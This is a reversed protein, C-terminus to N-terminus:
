LVRRAKVYHKKWFGTTLSKIQIGDVSPTNHIFKGGGMYIGVHNINGNNRGITDFFVLDGKRLNSKSVGYGQSKQNGWKLDVGVKAFIFETFSSCDFILRKKDRTGWDYSVRGQYSKALSIVRDAKSSAAEVTATPPAQVMTYATFGTTACMTLIVAKTFLPKFKM